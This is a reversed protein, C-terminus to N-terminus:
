RRVPLVHPGGLDVVTVSDPPPNVVNRTTGNEQTVKHDDCNRLLSELVIRLSVPLREINGLGAEQLTALRFYHSLRGGPLTLPHLAHFPDFTM